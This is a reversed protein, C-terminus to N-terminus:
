QKHVRRVGACVQWGSTMPHYVVPVEYRERLRTRIFTKLGLTGDYGLEFHKSLLANANQQAMAAFPAQIDFVKAIDEPETHTHQQLHKQLEKSFVLQKM